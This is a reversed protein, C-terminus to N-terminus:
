IERWFVQLHHISDITKKPNEYWIFEFNDHNLLEKLSNTIDTNIKDDTLDLSNYSYWLIYHNTGEPLNYPFMNKIFIHKQKIDEKDVYIKGKNSSELAPNTREVNCATLGTTM